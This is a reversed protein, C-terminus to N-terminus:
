EDLNPEIYDYYQPASQCYNAVPPQNYNMVCIKTKDVSNVREYEKSTMNCYFDLYIRTCVRKGAETLPLVYTYSEKSIECPNKADDGMYNRVCIPHDAFSQSYTILLAVTAIFIRM